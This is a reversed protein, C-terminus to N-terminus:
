VFDVSKLSLIERYKKTKKFSTLKKSIWERDTTENTRAV